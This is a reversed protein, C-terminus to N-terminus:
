QTNLTGRRYKLLVDGCPFTRTDLLSMLAPKNEKFLPKGSGLLVPNIFLHYEDILGMKTVSSIVGAGAFVVLDKGPQQKSRTIEEAANDKILATNNWEVKKLTNSLIFKPIEDMKRAFRGTASPWYAVMSLYAARGYIMADISDLVDDIHQEVEEDTVFWNLEQDPGEIFGDLSVFIHAFLRRM